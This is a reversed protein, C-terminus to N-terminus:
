GVVSVAKSCIFSSSFFLCQTFFRALARQTGTVFGEEILELRAVCAELCQRLDEGELRIMQRSVM